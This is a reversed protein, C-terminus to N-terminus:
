ESRTEDVHEACDPEWCWWTRDVDRCLHVNGRVQRSRVHPVGLSGHRHRLPHPYHRPHRRRPTPNCPIVSLAPPLRPRPGPPHPLANHRPGLQRHLPLRLVTHSNHTIMILILSPPSVEFNRWGFMKEAYLLVVTISGMAVGFLTSDIAALLMLNWRLRKSSGPGTPYLIKLPRFMRRPHWKRWGAEGEEEERMEEQKHRDRAVQLRRPSISEPLVTVVYVMFLVHVLVAGYFISLINGTAEVVLGGLVPGIAIGTFLCGQFAGFAIARKRPVTCDVGYAYSLAMALMFSGCLGDVLAGVLLLSTPLGPFEVCLITTIEAALLGASSFCILWRRGLRDSLSGLRPSTFASLLGSVLAMWLMFRSTEAHVDATQCMDNRDGGIVPMIIDAGDPNPHALYHDRCVLDLIINLRPVAVGGFAVAFLFFPGLLWFVSPRRWQPVHAWDREFQQEDEHDGPAEPPLLPERNSM